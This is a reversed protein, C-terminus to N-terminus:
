SNICQIDQLICKTLDVGVKGFFFRNSEFSSPEIHYSLRYKENDYDVFFYRICSSTDSCILINSYNKYALKDWLNEFKTNFSSATESYPFEPSSLIKAISKNGCRLSELYLNILEEKNNIRPFIQKAAFEEENESFVSKYLGETEDKRPLISDDVSEITKVLYCSNVQVVKEIYFTKFLILITLIITLIVLTTIFLLKIKIM